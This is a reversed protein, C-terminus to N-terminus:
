PLIQSLEAPSSRTTRTSQTAERVKEQTSIFVHCHDRFFDSVISPSNVSCNSCFGESDNGFRGTEGFAVDTMLDELLGFGGEDGLDVRDDRDGRDPFPTLVGRVTGLDKKPEAADEKNPELSELRAVFPLFAAECILWVAASLRPSVM